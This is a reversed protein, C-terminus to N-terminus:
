KGTKSSSDRSKKILLISPFYISAVKPLPPWELSIKLLNDDSPWKDAKSLSGSAILNELFNLIKWVEQQSLTGETNLKQLLDDYEFDKITFYFNEDLGGSKYRYAHGDKFIIRSSELATQLRYYIEADFDNEAIKKFNQIVLM